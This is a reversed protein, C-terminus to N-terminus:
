TNSIQVDTPAWRQMLIIGEYERAYDRLPLPNTTTELWDFYRAKLDEYETSYRNIKKM